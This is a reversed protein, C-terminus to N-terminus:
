VAAYFHFIEFKSNLARIKEFTLVYSVGFIAM